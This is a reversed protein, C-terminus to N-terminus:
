GDLSHQGECTALSTYDSHEYHKQKIHELRNINAMRRLVSPQRNM